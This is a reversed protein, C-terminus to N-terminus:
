LLDQLYEVSAGEMYSLFYYQLMNLIPITTIIIDSIIKIIKISKIDM